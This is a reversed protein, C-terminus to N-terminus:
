EEERFVEKMMSIKACLFKEILCVRQIGLIDLYRNLINKIETETLVLCILNVFDIVDDYYNDRLYILVQLHTPEKKVAGDIRIRSHSKTDVLAKFRMKDKGLYTHLAKDEIYCCLSSGNDYVPCMIRSNGDSVLAWNNQHRDTNGILFDFIVIKLFDAKVNYVALSKFIMQLSYYENSEADYLTNPDYAPYTENIFSIGEILQENENVILYSMCGMRGRYSGIDVKACKIGITCAIDFSIKESIHEFTSESKTFKFLGIDGTEYNVLWTKESRGSGESFGEDDWKDFNIIM